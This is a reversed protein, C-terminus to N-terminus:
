KYLELLSKGRKTDKADMGATKLSSVSRPLAATAVSKESGRLEWLAVVMGALERAFLKISERKEWWREPDFSGDRASAVKVTVAAPFVRGFIYRARRTHYNSTVVVISKWHKEQALKAVSAAEERTSDADHSLRVIKERPVGREILDHEMLESIGANPRLRRGSAVVTPAVGERFLQAAHTARDAYFNDDSLVVLADAHESPEDVVWSEAAFRLIPHRAFYAVACLVGVFLLAVLSTLAGGHEGARKGQKSM